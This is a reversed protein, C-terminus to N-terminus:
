FSQFTIYDTEDKWDTKDWARTLYRTNDMNEPACTCICPCICACLPCGLSVMENHNLQDLPKM